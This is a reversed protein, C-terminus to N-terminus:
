AKIVDMIKEMVRESTANHITDGNIKVIPAVDAVKCADFCKITHVEIDHEPYEQKMDDILEIINMAGMMTCHTGVCVDVKVKSM